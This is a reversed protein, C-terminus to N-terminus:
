LSHNVCTEITSLASEESSAGILLATDRTKETLAVVSTYGTQLKMGLRLFDTESETNISLLKAEISSLHQIINIKLDASNGCNQKM